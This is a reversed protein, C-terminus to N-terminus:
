EKTRRNLKDQRARIHPPWKSKIFALVAWIEDDSLIGKFAPMDSQYGEPALPPQLGEKTLEFLQDDPHHWTHGSQDHPPAPLRDNAKRIRWNEQGELNRGHCVACSRLYVLEGSAVQTTNEPDAVGDPKSLYVWTALAGTAAVGIAVISVLAVRASM